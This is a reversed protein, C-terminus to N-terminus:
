PVLAIPPSASRGSAMKPAPLKIRPKVIGIAEMLYAFKGFDNM